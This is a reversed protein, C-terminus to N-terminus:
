EYRLAVIPDVRTARRAPIWCAALAVAALLAAVAAYTLPDSPRVDYLLGGLFRTLGLAAVVGIGLGFLILRMGQGLVLRLVDGSQAGLAMRVGIEQTRQAVSFAIVGYLGVSALALAVVAFAGLLFTASRRLFVSRSGTILQEGTAAEYIVAEPDLAAMGRRISALTAAADGEARVVFGSAWSGSQRTSVYMVPRVRGDLGALKVDAVVGVVQLKAQNLQVVINKGVPDENPFLGRAMTESLIVVIPAGAADRDTFERGGRLPIGAAAFYGAGAERYVSEYSEDPSTPPRSEAFVYLTGGDGTMPAHNVLAVARVGPLAAIRELARDYFQVALASEGYKVSPISVRMTLLNETRFGPDVDLLRTLSQLVLGTGVLLVLALAVQTVVLAGRLRSRASSSTRSSEKLSEQLNVERARWAPVIGFVMGTILSVLATFGVLRTDLTLDMLAPFQTAYNGPVARVLLDTGWVAVLMGAIGGLAALMMGEVLMQRILRARSAGLALRVAIERDRTAARALLLNAVNVCAIMLVFVVAGLLVLLIPRVNGTIEERLPVVQASTYASVGRHEEAIQAALANMETQAQELTVGDRLRAITNLWYLNRRTVQGEWMYLPVFLEFNRLSFEFGPPLVGIVVYPRSTLTLTRGIINADGGFRNQWSAYSLVVVGSGEVREDETTWFRGLHPRVGLLPFMSATVRTARVREPLEEDSGSLTFSTGNYGALGTFVRNRQQWDLYAPYSAEARDFDRNSRTQWLHVLQNPDQYPLPRLLVVDVVSFIASNAGIGLAITLIAVVTFGPKKILMRWSFRLDQLM